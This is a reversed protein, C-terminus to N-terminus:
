NPHYRKTDLIYEISSHRILISRCFIFLRSWFPPRRWGRKQLFLISMKKNKQCLRQQDPSLTM